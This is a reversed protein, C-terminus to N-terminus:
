FIVDKVVFEFNDSVKYFDIVLIVLIVFLEYILSDDDKWLM